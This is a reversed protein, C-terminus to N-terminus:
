CRAPRGARRSAPAPLPGCGPPRVRRLPLGRPLSVGHTGYGDALLLDHDLLVGVGNGAVPLHEHAHASGPQVARVHHLPLAEVRSWGARGRVNGAELQRAFLQPAMTTKGHPALLVGASACYGAMSAINSALASERLVMLPWVFDGGFLSPRIQALRAASVPASWALRGFGKDTVTIPQDRLARVAERLRLPPGPDM